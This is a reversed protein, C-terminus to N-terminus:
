RKCAPAELVTIKAAQWVGAPNKYLLLNYRFYDDISPTTVLVKGTKLDKSYNKSQDECFTLTASNSRVTAVKASYYSDIGTPAWDQKINQNIQDRAYSLADGRSYFLYAPDKLNHAAAARTYARVYEEADSLVADKTADGTKPWEFTMTLDKPLATSPRTVGGAVTVRATPTGAATVAAPATTAPQIPDSSDSGGGGGCAALLLGGSVAVAVAVPLSTRTM